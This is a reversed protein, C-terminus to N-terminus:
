RDAPQDRVDLCVGEGVDVGEAVYDPAVAGDGWEGDLLEGIGCATTSLTSASRMSFPEQGLYRLSPGRSDGTSGRGDM